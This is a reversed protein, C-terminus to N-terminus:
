YLPLRGQIGLGANFTAGPDARMRYPGPFSNNRPTYGLGVDGGLCFAETFCHSVRVRSGVEYGMGKEPMGQYGAGHVSWYQQGYALLDASTKKEKSFFFRYGGEAGLMYQPGTDQDGLYGALGSMVLASQTGPIGYALELRWQVGQYGGTGPRHGGVGEIALRTEVQTGPHCREELSEWPKSPDPPCLKNLARMIERDSHLLLEVQQHLDKAGRYWALLENWERGFKAPDGIASYLAEVKNKADDLELALVEGELAEIRREMEAVQEFLNSSLVCVVLGNGVQRVPVLDSSVSGTGNENEHCKCDTGLFDSQNRCVPPPLKAPKVPLSQRLAEGCGRLRELADKATDTSTALDARCQQLAVLCATDGQCAAAPDTTVTAGLNVAPDSADQAAAVASFVLIAAALAAFSFKNMKAM